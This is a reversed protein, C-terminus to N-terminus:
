RASQTKTKKAALEVAHLTKEVDNDSHALSTYFARTTRIYVGNNILCADFVSRKKIDAKVIDRYTVVKRSTFLVCFINRPGVIQAEIGERDFISRMGRKLGEAIGDIHEYSGSTELVGLTALGAAMVTPCGNYTGSHFLRPEKGYRQPSVLEMIEKKGAFAGAPLGGGVVKGLAVLDPTVGLYGQACHLGYRFGTMVEDFILVIGNRETIERLGKAFERDSLLYGKIAPELIVAALDSANKKILKLTSDLNNFPLVVTNEVISPLIGSSDPIAVPADEPGAEDLRPTVSITVYDHSGHYHGEFKAIKKRGTFARALRLTHMTAELGSNTFRVNEACPVLDVIKKAMSMELEHPTGYISTGSEELQKMIAHTVKPHGHGLILPGFSLCYDIYENGDVDYLKSGKARKMFLPYPDYYKVNATVGGTITEM